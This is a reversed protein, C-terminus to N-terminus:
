NGTVSVRGAPGGDAVLEAQAAKLVPDHNAVALMHKCPGEQYEFVPCQLTQRSTLWTPTSQATMM